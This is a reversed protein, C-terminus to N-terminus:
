EPDREDTRDREAAGLVRLALCAAGYGNDINCVAIGPACSALASDLAVKGGEAVGYGNSTPVAIVVGRALGGVVSFLAGEMGACVIVVPMRAIVERHEMLRWLGAVGVDVIERSGRGHFALTRAVERAVALDSTGGTVIAVEDMDVAAKIDASIATRSIPDYDLAARQSEPLGAFQEESLRTILMPAAGAFSQAIGEAIQESTKVDALIAESLGIRERRGLDFRMVRSRDDANM